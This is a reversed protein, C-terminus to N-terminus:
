SISFRLVAAIGGFQELQKGERTENSILVWKGGTQETKESLREIENDDYSESILLTDIAGSTLAREVEDKGYATFSPKTSLLDFFRTVAKKEQIIEEQSLIDSAKNVLEDLGATGTYGIDVTGIIKKKVAETFQNRIVNEKTPGPGGVIVGKLDPKNAFEKDAAVAIKKFFDKALNERVRQFRAASQGGARTKGPVLSTFSKIPVITKGKLWAINAERRDLVILGYAATSVTMEKLPELFFSQDCRYLRTKLPIPPEMSWVQVDSVGEQGSVNGSFLILGNPPTQKYVKLERRMKELADTVNKRTSSSKINRATGQESSLQANVKNIDYGAPIYVTILETHRARHKGLERVLKRLQFRIKPDM